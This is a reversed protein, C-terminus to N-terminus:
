PRHENRRRYREDVREGPLPSRRPFPDDDRPETDTVLMLVVVLVVCVIVACLKEAIADNSPAIQALVQIGLAPPM